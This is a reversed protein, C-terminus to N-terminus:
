RVRDDVQERDGAAEADLEFEVVEVREDPVHGGQHVQLRAALVQHLVEAVCAAQGGDHALEAAQQVGAREGDGTRGHPLVDLVGGGPVAVDDHGHVLGELARARAGRHQ